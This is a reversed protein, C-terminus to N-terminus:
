RHEMTRPNSLINSTVPSHSSSTPRLDALAARDGVITLDPHGVLSSAPHDVSAPEFFAATIADRKEDGTAILVIRRAAAITTLGQTIVRHPVDAPDDFFRANDARTTASLEAVHTRSDVATGPENFGIHGNRGIGLIQLDVGGLDGLLADFDDAAADLDRADVDPAHLHADDIGAPGALLLSITARYRQPSGHVLGVYEDLLTLHTGQELTGRQILERYASLPSSGTAVGLVAPAHRAVIDAVIAGVTEIDDGVIVELGVGRAYRSM